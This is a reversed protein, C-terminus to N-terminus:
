NTTGPQWVRVWDVHMPQKVGTGLIVVLHSTDMISFQPSHRPNGSIDWSVKSTPKGDFYNQVYGIKNVQNSPVWLQGIVHFKTWDIDQSSRIFANNFKSGGASTTNIQCFAPPCTKKWIGYWDHMTAGYSNQGAFSATDYEFFDDEIFHSYGKARGQWQDAGKTAMHEISMSWFAPWGNKTNVTAPDFAIKAEFYAGGGFARGVWGQLNKAPAATAINANRTGGPTSELTLIGNNISILSPTYKSAPAFFPTTYWKFGPSLSGSVDISTLSNFEDEFVLQYGLATPSNPDFSKTQISNAGAILCKSTALMIVLVIITSAKM